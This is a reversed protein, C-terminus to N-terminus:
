LVGDKLECLGGETGPVEGIMSLDMQLGEQKMGSLM